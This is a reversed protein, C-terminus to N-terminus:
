ANSNEQRTDIFARKAMGTTFWGGPMRRIPGIHLIGHEVAARVTPVGVLADHTRRAAEAFGGADCHLMVSLLSRGHDSALTVRFDLVEPIAFVAEDLMSMHLRGHPGLAVTNSIRGQVKGLRRLVSGCPCLEPLFRAIGCTRYRILPMAFRSLTTFVVEGTVGEPLVEGTRPDVVEVYLDTERLHYGQHAACEVGGGYGMETMGYHQYVHCGWTREIDTVIAAPVYDTSLLVSRIFGRQIRECAPHRVLSLVQVPIGVLCDARHDLIADITEEPDRVPGHVIGRTGMRELGKVLLDGVSGPSEGPMLILVRQGASVLTSMGHQFFDVTGELDAETFFLRKPLGTTGSSQLTVVRVVETHSVCLFEFPDRRLDEPTTFPL